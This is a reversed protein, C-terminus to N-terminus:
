AYRYDVIIGSRTPPATNLTIVSGLVTYDTTLTFRVGNVYLRVSSAIPEHALTFDTNVGNIVGSPTENEAYNTSFSILDSVSVSHVGDSILGALFINKWRLAESGLNLTNDQDPVMDFYNKIVQNDM